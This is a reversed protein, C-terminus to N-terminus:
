NRKVFKIKPLKIIKANTLQLFFEDLEEAIKEWTYSSEVIQRGDIGWRKLKERNEHVQLIAHAIEISSISSLFIGCKNDNIIWRHAPIDTVLVVKQMSLYELLKLPSQCRWYPHDPLPIICVDSMAIYEPVKNHPVAKEIRVSNELRSKKILALSEEFYPGAGLILLMINTNSQEVISMAEIIQRIGRNESISGHYFVIFKNELGIKQKLHSQSFDNPNFLSISVGSGWSTMTKENIKFKDSVEKKMMPTLVTIGDFFKKAFITSLNFATVQLYGQFGKTEVPPSRIDFVTKIKLLKCIILSTLLSPSIIESEVILIKTSTKLIYLPLFLSLYISFMLTTLSSFSRIPIPVLHLPTRFRKFSKKSTLALFTVDHGRRVLQEMVELRSASDIRFDLFVPSLWM